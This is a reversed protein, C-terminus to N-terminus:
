YDTDSSDLILKQKVDTKIKKNTQYTSKKNNNNNEENKLAIKNKKDNLIKDIEVIINESLYNGSLNINILSNLNILINKLDNICKDTMENLKLSVDTIIDNKIMNKNLINIFEDDIFNKDLYIKILTTNMNLYNICSILDKKYNNLNNRSLNIKELM